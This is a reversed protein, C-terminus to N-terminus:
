QNLLTDTVVFTNSSYYCFGGKTSQEDVIWELENIPEQIYLVNTLNDCTAIKFTKLHWLRFGGGICTDSYVTDKTQALVCVTVTDANYHVLKYSVSIQETTQNDVILYGSGSPIETQICGVLTMLSIALVIPKM